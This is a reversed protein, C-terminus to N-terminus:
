FGATDGLREPKPLTEALGALHVEPFNPQSRFTFM